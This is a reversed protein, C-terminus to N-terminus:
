VFKNSFQMFLFLVVPFIKKFRPFANEGIHLEVFGAVSNELVHYNTILLPISTTDDERVSFMFGTGSSLSGDNKKAYIPVTM